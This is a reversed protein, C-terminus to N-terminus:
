EEGKLFGEFKRVAVSSGVQWGRAMLDKVDYEPFM